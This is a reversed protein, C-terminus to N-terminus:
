VPRAASSAPCVRASSSGSVASRIRATPRSPSSAMRSSFWHMSWYRATSFAHLCVAQITGSPRFFDRGPYRASLRRRIGTTQSFSLGEECSTRDKKIYFVTRRGTQAVLRVVGCFSVSFDAMVLFPFFWTRFCDMSYMMCGALLTSGSPLRCRCIACSPRSYYVSRKRFLRDSIGSSMAPLSPVLM